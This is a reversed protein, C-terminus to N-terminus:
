AHNSACWEFLTRWEARQREVLSPPDVSSVKAVADILGEPLGEPDYSQRATLLPHREARRLWYHSNSFDGERRHMVGHWYSGSPTELSQSVAHSRELDDVYLWLGAALDSRNALAPERLVTEVLATHKPESGTLRPMAQDLPLADFLPKCAEAISAPLNMM